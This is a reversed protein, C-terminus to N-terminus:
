DINRGLEIIMKHCKNKIKGPLNSIETKNLKKKKSKKDQKKM